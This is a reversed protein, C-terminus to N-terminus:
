KGERITSHAHVVPELQCGQFNANSQSKMKTNGGDAMVVMVHCGQFILLHKLYESKLSSLDAKNEAQNSHVM